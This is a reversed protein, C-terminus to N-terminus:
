RRGGGIEPVRAERERGAEWRGNQDKRIRGKRMGDHINEAQTGLFLHDPRVCRRNDCRHLVKMGEPVAGNHLEWSLRHTRITTTREGDRLGLRGYGFQDCAGSWEWCGAARRAYKWFRSRLDGRM